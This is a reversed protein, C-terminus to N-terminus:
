RRKDKGTSFKPEGMDRPSGQPEGFIKGAILTHQMVM